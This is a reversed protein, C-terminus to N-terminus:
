ANNFEGLRYHSEAIYYRAESRRPSQPYSKLFASLGRVAQQYQQNFYLNKATEFEVSELGKSDPNARKFTALYNAFEGPRGALTLAEQLPVLSEEAAPHTPYERLIRSYDGITSSYDKLNFASAARRMYAYPAFSSGPMERLLQTLGDIAQQYNGQEIDFQA